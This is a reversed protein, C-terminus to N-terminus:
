EQQGNDESAEIEEDDRNEGNDNIEQYVFNIRAYKDGMISKRYAELDLVEKVEHSQEKSGDKLIFMTRTIRYMIKLM